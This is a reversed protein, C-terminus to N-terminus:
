KQGGGLKPLPHISWKRSSNVNVILFGYPGNKCCFVLEEFDPCDVSSVPTRNDFNITFLKYSRKIKEKPWWYDEIELPSRIFTCVIITVSVAFWISAM